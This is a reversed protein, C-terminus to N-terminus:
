KGYVKKMEKDKGIYASIGFHKCCEKHREVFNPKLAEEKTIKSTPFYPEDLEWLEDQIVFHKGKYDSLYFEKKDM